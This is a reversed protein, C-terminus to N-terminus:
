LCEQRSGSEALRPTMKRNLIDGHIRLVFRFPEFNVTLFGHRVSKQLFGLFDAENGHGKLRIHLTPSFLNPTFLSQAYIVIDQHAPLFLLIILMRTPGM